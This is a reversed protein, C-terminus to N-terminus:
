AAPSDALTTMVPPLRLEEFSPIEARVRRIALGIM